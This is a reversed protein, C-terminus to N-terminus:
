KEYYIVNVSFARDAPSQNNIYFASTNWYVLWTIPEWATLTEGPSTAIPTVQISIITGINLSSFSLNGNNGTNSDWFQKSKINDTTFAAIKISKTSYTVVTQASADRAVNFTNNPNTVYPAVVSPVYPIDKMKLGGELSTGKVVKFGTLDPNTSSAPEGIVYKYTSTTPTGSPSVTTESGFSIYKPRIGYKSNFVMKFNKDTKTGELEMSIDNSSVEFPGINASVSNLHGSNNVTFMDNINLEGGTISVDNATVKGNDDVSFTTGSEANQISISGGTVTLDNANVRGQQDVIFSTSHGVSVIVGSFNRAFAVCEDTVKKPDSPDLETSEDSYIEFSKGATENKVVYGKSTVVYKISDYVNITLVADSVQTQQINTSYGLTSLISEKISALMADDIQFTTTLEITNGNLTATNVINSLDNLLYGSIAQLADTHLDTDHQSVSIVNDNNIRIAGQTITIDGDISAGSAILYGADTIEISKDESAQNLNFSTAYVDGANTVRFNNNVNIAGGTIFVSNAEVNGDKDVNFTTGKEENSISISGSNVNIKGTVEVNGATLTKKIEANEATLQKAVLNDIAFQSAEIIGSCNIKEVSLQKIQAQTLRANKSEIYQANVTDAILKSVTVGDTYGKDNTLASISDGNKVSTSSIGNKKVGLEISDYMNLLVDYKTKIVRLSENVGLETYVVKVTDGLLVKELDKYQDSDTTSALNVFSLTTTKKLQGVDNDAIYKNALIRLNKQVDTESEEETENQNEDTTNNKQSDSIESSLDLALIKVYKMSKADPKDIWIIPDDLEIHTVTNQTTSTVEGSSPIVEAYYVVMSNMTSASMISGSYVVDGAKKQSWEDTPQMRFYGDKGAVVRVQLKVLGSWDISIWNPEIAGQVITTQQNYIKENYKQVAPNWAFVRGKYEGESEIQVPVTDIPHYANGNESFSLWGDQLPKTGVVYAKKFEDNVENTTTSQEKNYYPYVGNYLTEDNVDQKLDTMNKSYRVEVGRDSGRKKVINVNFKDFKAEAKYKYLLTWEGTGAIIARASYPETTEYHTGSAIDTTFTFRKDGLLNGNQIKSVAEACSEAKFARVILGNLDYSIHAANVTVIGNIPRTIQYIRFPQGSEYPNPKAYIIRGIRLKSYFQGNVPYNMELEYTCDLTEEVSCSTADKLIGLGLTEFRLEDEEYLIIM